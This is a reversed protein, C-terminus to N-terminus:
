GGAPSSENRDGVQKLVLEIGRVCVEILQLLCFSARSQVRALEEDTRTGVLLDGGRLLHIRKDDRRRGVEMRLVEFGDNGRALVHVQFFGDGHVGGARFPDALNPLAGLALETQVHSELDAVARGKDLQDAADVRSRQAIDDAGFGVIQGPVDIAGQGSAAGASRRSRFQTRSRTSEPSMMTSCFMWTISM